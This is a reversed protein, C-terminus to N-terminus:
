LQRRRLGEVVLQPESKTDLGIPQGCPPVPIAAGVRVTAEWVERTGTPSEVSVLETRGDELDAGQRPM